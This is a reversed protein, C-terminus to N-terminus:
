ILDEMTSLGYGVNMKFGSGVDMKVFMVDM